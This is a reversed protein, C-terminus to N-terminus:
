RNRGPPRRAAAGRGVLVGVNRHCELSKELTAGDDLLGEWTDKILGVAIAKSDYRKADSTLLDFDLKSNILKWWRNTIEPVSPYLEPDSEDDIVWKCRLVWILWASEAIVITRLREQGPTLNKKKNPLGCTLIDGLTTLASESQPLGRRRLLGDALKWITSQCSAPCQVLLHEATERVQCHQCLARDAYAPNDNWNVGCPLAGHMVKWLFARVKKQTVNPGRISRWLEESTPEYGLKQQATNKALAINAITERRESVKKSHWNGIAAYLSAQTQSALRSGQVVQSHKTAFRRIPENLPHSAVTSIAIDRARKRMGSDSHEGYECLILLGSRNRLRAVLSPMLRQCEHGLWGVDENAQLRTTVDEILQKS